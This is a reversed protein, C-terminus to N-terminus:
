YETTRPDLSPRRTPLRQPHPQVRMFDCNCLVIIRVPRTWPPGADDIGVWATVANRYAENFRFAIQDPDVRGPGHAQRVESDAVPDRRDEVAKSCHGSSGSSAWGCISMAM